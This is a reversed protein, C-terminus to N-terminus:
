PLGHIEGKKIKDYIILDMIFQQIRVLYSYDNPVFTDISYHIQMKTYLALGIDTFKYYSYGKKPKVSKIIDFDKLTKLAKRLGYVSNFKINELDLGHSELRKIAGQKIHKTGKVYSDRSIKKEEYYKKIRGLLKKDDETFFFKELNNKEYENDIGHDKVLAYRLHIFRIKQKHTHLILDLIAQYKKKRCINIQTLGTRKKKEM